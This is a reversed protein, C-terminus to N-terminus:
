NLQHKTCAEHVIVNVGHPYSNHVIKVFSIDEIAQIQLM